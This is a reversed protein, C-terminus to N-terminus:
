DKTLPALGPISCLPSHLVIIISNHNEMHIQQSAACCAAGTGGGGEGGVGNYSYLIIVFVGRELRQTSRINLLSMIM